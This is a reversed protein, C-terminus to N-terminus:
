SKYLIRLTDWFLHFENIHYHNIVWVLFEGFSYMEQFNIHYCYFFSFSKNCCMNWIVTTAGWVCKFGVLSTTLWGSVSKRIARIKQTIAVKLESTSQPGNECVHDKLFTPKLHTQPVFATMQFMHQLLHIRQGSSVKSRWNKLNNDYWSGPFTIKTDSYHIIIM